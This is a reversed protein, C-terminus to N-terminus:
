MSTLLNIVIRDNAYFASASNLTIIDLCFIVCFVISWARTKRHKSKEKRDYTKYQIKHILISVRLFGFACSFTRKGSKDSTYDERNNISYDYPNYCSSNDASKISLM